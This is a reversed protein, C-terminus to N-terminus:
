DFHVEGFRKKQRSIWTLRRHMYWTYRRAQWLAFQKRRGEPVPLAHIRRMKRAVSLNGDGRLTLIGAFPWNEEIIPRAKDLLEHPICFVFYNAVSGDAQRRANQWHRHKSKKIEARLDSISVKIECDIGMGNANLFYVDTLCSGMQCEDIVILPRYNRAAYYFLAARIKVTKQADSDPARDVLPMPKTM